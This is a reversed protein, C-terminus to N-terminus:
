NLKMYEPYQADLKKACIKWLDEPSYWKTKDMEQTYPALLNVCLESCFYANKRNLRKSLGGFIAGVLDYETKNNVLETSIKRIQTEQAANIWPLPLCVWCWHNYNIKKFHVDKPYTSSIATGDSFCLECHYAKSRTFLSILWPVIDNDIDHIAIAIHMM